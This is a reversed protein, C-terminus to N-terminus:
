SFLVFSCYSLVISSSLLAVGPIDCISQRLISLFLYPLQLHLWLRSFKGPSEEEGSLKAASVALLVRSIGLFDVIGPTELHREEDVM